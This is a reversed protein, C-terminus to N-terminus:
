PGPLPNHGGSRKNELMEILHAPTKNVLIKTFQARYNQVLSVGEIKVDYVKWTGDTKHVSYYIPIDLDKRVLKTEVLSRADSIHKQSVYIVKEDSRKQMRDIYTNGLLESFLRTFELKEDQSFSRWYQAATLRSMEDFDFIDRVVEWIAEKQADKKGAEQFESAELIAIVKDVSNKITDLPEQAQGIIHQSLILFFVFWVFGIKKM